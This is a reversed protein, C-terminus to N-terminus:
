YNNPTNIFILRLYGLSILIGLVYVIKFQISTDIKPMFFYAEQFFTFYALNLILYLWILSLVLLSVVIKSYIKM